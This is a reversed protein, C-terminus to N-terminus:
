IILIDIERMIKITENMVVVIKQWHLIDEVSLVMGKRDKLWKQAPQYGGIYFEWAELSVGDFYQEPNIWVKGNNFEVKEVRNDGVTPYKTVLEDLRPSEMLHLERLEKGLKVLKWFKDKDDPYPVRPFDIKLFEKYNERYSPSHLVAYIYDLLDTPAFAVSIDTKEQEFKMMLKEEIKAVTEMNLNATRETQGPLAGEAAYLYLPYIIPIGKNSFHIRNDIINRSIHVHSWTDTIAQRPIVLGFNDGNLFHQMIENRWRWILKNDYYTWKKDFPRYDIQVIKAPDIIIKNKNEIIWKSYNKGLDYKDNMEKDTIPSNIFDNLRKELEKKSDAIIFGDGMTVIGTVYIPFLENIMFGLNYVDKLAFDKPSFFYYPDSYQMENYPISNLSHNWLFAYKDNRVGFLDSHYVKGLESKKKKGTKIFINISVGQQIDFVNEDKGGDLAKEKKNSNGHLDLIFIKDFTQLLHWRMGRFTPNDLFGHNNIFALIGEGNKEIFHEGFRLFKVYDDQLWHKKEGFHVGNVYKYDEILGCIWKGMNSSVASYPPNGIVVMVPRENKVSNAEQAEMSLFRAFITGTHEHAEELSNTLFVRLRQDPNAGTEAFLSSLKLHSITYPAMLIEFGNLRPILEKNVYEPWLGEQGKFGSYIQKVIEALFTGTGAAPDLIQIKHLEREALNKTKKNVYGPVDMKVTVKSIDALGKSFQFDSKLISDVARVIFNVVPEPTYYVGRKERLKPDYEKLFTEYFHIFSDERGSTKGFGSLLDKLDVARFVDALDDVIWAVRSDLEAGCVYDFLSRLFPNSQPILERAEQRSFTDLTTDHLRATFMGYAITQAYIDAFKEINLDHILVDKFAEYQSFLSSEETKDDELAKKFVDEMLRAKKAMIQALKESSKITQGAFMSYDILHNKLDDYNDPLPVIKDGQVKGISVKHVPNGFRYFRFELYDTLILNELSNKYRKMQDSKEEISLDLGIKKTEIYGVPIVKNQIIIDPAGCSQRRPENTNTLHPFLSSLLGQLDTRFSHETTNGGSFRRTVLSVYEKIDM